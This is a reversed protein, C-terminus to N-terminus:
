REAIGLGPTQLEEAECLTTLFVASSKCSPFCENEIAIDGAAHPTHSSSSTVVCVVPFVFSFTSIKRKQRTGMCLFGSFDTISVFHLNQIATSYTSLIVVALTVIHMIRSLVAEDGEVTIM